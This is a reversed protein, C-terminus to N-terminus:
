TAAASRLVLLTIEPRAGLRVPPTGMGVGRTVYLQTRGVRVLGQALRRHKIPLILPGIGPLRVQGGHTHGSLVLPVGLREARYVTMPNHALLVVTEGEQAGALAAPVDPWGWRLDEVGALWLRGGGRELPVGANRLLRIGASTLAKTVVRSDVWYDHNGLVAYAGLRSELRELAEAAVQADAPDRAVYDGLLAVLDPHLRNTAAVVRALDSPGFNPGVHLDSILAIRLGDLGTPLDALKLEVQPTDLWRPEIYFAYAVLGAGGLSLLPLAANWAERQANWTEDAGCRAVDSTSRLGAWRVIRGALRLALLGNLLSGGALAHTLLYPRPRALRAAIMAGIALGGEGALSALAIGALGVAAAVPRARGSRLGSRSM